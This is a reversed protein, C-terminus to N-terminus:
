AAYRRTRVRLLDLVDVRGEEGAGAVRVPARELAAAIEDPSLTGGLALWGELEDVLRRVSEFARLDQRSGEGVPPAEVGYAARLMFRALATVGALPAPANRLLELPPLRHGERRRMTEEEAREGSEVARGRLRGEVWDVSARALGSYPTRRFAH